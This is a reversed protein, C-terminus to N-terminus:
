ANYSCIQLPLMGHRGRDLAFVFAVWPFGIFVRVATIIAPVSSCVCAFMEHLDSGCVELKPVAKGGSAGLRRRLSFTMTIENYNTHGTMLISELIARAHDYSFM